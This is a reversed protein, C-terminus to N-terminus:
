WCFVPPLPCGQCSHPVLGIWCCNRSWIWLWRILQSSRWMRVINDFHCHVPKFSHSFCGNWCCNGSRIRLLKILRSSSCKCGINDVSAPHCHVAELSYAVFGNWCCNRTRIRLRGIWPSALAASVPQYILLRRIVISLRSRILSLDM